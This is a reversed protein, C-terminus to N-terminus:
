ISGPAQMVLGPATRIDHYLCTLLLSPFIVALVLALPRFASFFFFFFFLFCANGGQTSLYSSSWPPVALRAFGQVYSIGHINYQDYITMFM